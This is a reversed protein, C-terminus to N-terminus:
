PLRRTEDQVAGSIAVGPKTNSRKNSGRTTRPVGRPARVREDQSSDRKGRAAHNALHWALAATCPLASLVRENDCWALRIAQRVAPPLAEIGARTPEDLHPLPCDPRPCQDGSM